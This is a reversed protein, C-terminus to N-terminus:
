WFNEETAQGTLSSWNKLKQLILYANKNLKMLELNLRSVRNM